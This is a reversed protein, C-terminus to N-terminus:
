GTFYALYGSSQQETEVPYALVLTEYENDFRKERTLRVSTKDFTGKRRVVILRTADLLVAIKEIGEITDVFLQTSM